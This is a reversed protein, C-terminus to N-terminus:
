RHRRLPITDVCHVIHLGQMCMGWSESAICGIDSKITLGQWSYLIRFNMIINLGQCWDTYAVSEQMGYVAFM